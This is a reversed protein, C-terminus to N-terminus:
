WWHVPLLSICADLASTPLVSALCMVERDITSSFTSPVFDDPWWLHNSIMSLRPFCSSFMTLKVLQGRPSTIECSIAAIKSQHLEQSVARLHTIILETGIWSNRCRCARYIKSGTKHDFEIEPTWKSFRYKLSVELCTGDFNLFKAYCLTLTM